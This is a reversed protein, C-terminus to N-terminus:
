RDERTHFIRLIYVDAGTSEYRIEYNGVIIRRVERAGFEQLRVGLRPRAPIRKAAELLTHVARVAAPPHAPQLFEYLRVLDSQAKSTWRLAV